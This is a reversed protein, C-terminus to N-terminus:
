LKINVSRTNAGSRGKRVGMVKKKPKESKPGKKAQKLGKKVAAPKSLERPLESPFGMALQKLCNESINLTIEDDVHVHTMVDEEVDTDSDGGATQSALQKKQKLERSEEKMLKKKKPSGTVPEVNSSSKKKGSGKTAIKGVEPGGGAPQMGSTDSVKPKADVVGGAPEKPPPGGTGKLLKGSKSNKNISQEKPQVNGSKVVKTRKVPPETKEEAKGTPRKQPSPLVKSGVAATKEISLKNVVEEENHKSQKTPKEKSQFERVEPAKQKASPKKDIDKVIKKEKLLKKKVVKDSKQSEVLIPKEEKEKSISKVKIIEKEASTKSGTIMTSGDEKAPETNKVVKKLVAVKTKGKPNKIVKGDSSKADRCTRGRRRSLLKVTAQPNTMKSKVRVKEKSSAESANSSSSEHRSRNSRVSVDSNTSSTSERRKKASIDKSGVTSEQKKAASEAKKALLESSRGEKALVELSPKKFPSKEDPGCVAMEVRKSEKELKQSDGKYNKASTKSDTTNLVNSTGADELTRKKGKKSNSGKVNKVRTEAATMKISTESTNTSLATVKPEIDTKGLEEAHKQVAALKLSKKAVNKSARTATPLKKPKELESAVSKSGRAATSADGSKGGTSAMKRGTHMELYNRKIQRTPALFVPPNEILSTPFEVVDLNIEDDLVAPGEAAAAAQVTGADAPLTLEAPQPSIREASAVRPSKARAKASKKGVPSSPVAEDTKLVGSPDTGTVPAQLDTEVSHDEAQDRDQIHCVVDSDPVFDISRSHKIRPAPEKDASVSVTDTDSPSSLFTDDSIEIDTGSDQVLSSGQVEDCKIQDPEKASVEINEILNKAELECKPAIAKTDNAPKSDQENMGANNRVQKGSCIEPDVDSKESSISLEVPVPSEVKFEELVEIAIEEIDESSQLSEAVIGESISLSLDSMDHIRPEKLVSSKEDGVSELAADNGMIEAEEQLTDAELTIDVVANDNRSDIEINDDKLDPNVEQAGVSITAQVESINDVFDENSSAPEPESKGQENGKKNNDLFDDENVNRDSCTKLDTVKDHNEVSRRINELTAGTGASAPVVAKPDDDAQQRVVDADVLKRDMQNRHVEELEQEVLEGMQKEAVNECSVGIETVSPLSALEQPTEEITQQIDKQSSAAPPLEDIGQNRFHEAQIASDPEGIPLDAQSLYESASDPALVAEEWTSLV